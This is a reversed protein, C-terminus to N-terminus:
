KSSNTLIAKDMYYGVITSTYSLYVAQQSYAEESISGVSSYFNAFHVSQGANQASTIAYNM